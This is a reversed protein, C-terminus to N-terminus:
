KWRVVKFGTRGGERRIKPYGVKRSLGSLSGLARVHVRIIVALGFNDRGLSAHRRVGINGVFCRGALDTCVVGPEEGGPKGM